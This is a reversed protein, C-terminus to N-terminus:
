IIATSAGVLRVRRVLEEPLVGKDLVMACGVQQARQYTAHDTHVTLAIVASALGERKIVRCADLGDFKKGDPTPMVVDMLILTPNLKRAEEVAQPGNGAEGVVEIDDQLSLLTGISERVEERDDVVMVRVTKNSVKHAQKGSM